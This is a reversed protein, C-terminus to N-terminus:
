KFMDKENYKKNIKSLLMNFITFRENKTMGVFSVCIISLIVSFLSLTIFSYFTDDFIYLKLILPLPISIALVLLAPRLVKTLYRQLSFGIQKICFGLRSAGSLLSICITTYYVSPADFGLLLMFYAAPVVFLLVCSVFIQYNRIKGTAQMSTILPSGFLLNAMNDIIILITFINTLEPVDKLWIELIYDINLIVPLAIIFLLFFSFKLGRYALNEMGSIDGVSYHKTIQPNLAMSFNTVFNMVTQSVRLSIGRAANVVPGFFMNLLVNIGQDRLMWGLSGFLNWGAFGSMENFLRNNWNFSYRCEKFKTVCYAVYIIRIIITLIFMGISYSILKDFSIITLLYVFTLKLVAEFISMYAYVIMHEHAIIAANYPVQSINIFFSFVALQYVINAAMIRSEPIELKYNLFWLGITESLLIVVIGIIIHINMSTIFIENIRENNGKGLEVTIFRQTSTAMSNNLFAFMTVVGAVVNNIGYDEIGLTYLIVRSTYLSICMLFLMRFYLFFTNKAIRKNNQSSDTTM